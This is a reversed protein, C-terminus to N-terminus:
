GLVSVGLADLFYTLAIFFSGTLKAKNTASLIKATRVMFLFGDRRMGSKVPM